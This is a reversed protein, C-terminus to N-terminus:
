VFFWLWSSHCGAGSSRAAEIILGIDLYTESAANGDLAVAQDAMDVFPSDADAQDFPSPKIGRM